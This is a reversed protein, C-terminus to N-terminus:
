FYHYTVRWGKITDSRKHNDFLYAAQISTLSGERALGIRNRKVFYVMRFSPVIVSGLIRCLYTSRCIRCLYTDNSNNSCSQLMDYKFQMKRGFLLSRDTLQSSILVGQVFYVFPEISLLVKLHLCSSLLYSSYKRRM